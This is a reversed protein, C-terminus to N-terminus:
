FAISFEYGAVLASLGVFVWRGVRGAGSNGRGALWVELRWVALGAAAKAGIAKWHSGGFLPNSERGGGLEVAAVTSAANLAWAGGYWKWAQEADLVERTKAAAAGHLLQARAQPAPPGMLEGAAASAALAGLLGLTAGIITAARTIGQFAQVGVREPSTRHCSGTTGARGEMGM